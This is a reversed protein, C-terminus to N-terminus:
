DPTLFESLMKCSMIFGEKVNIYVKFLLVIIHTKCTLVKSLDTIQNYLSNQCVLGLPLNLQFKFFSKIIDDALNFFFKYFLKGFVVIILLM